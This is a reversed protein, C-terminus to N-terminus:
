ANGRAAARPFAQDQLEGQGGLQGETCVLLVGQEGVQGRTVEARRTRDGSRQAILKIAEIGVKQLEVLAVRGCRAGLSHAKRGDGHALLTDGQRVGARLVGELEITTNLVKIIGRSRAAAEAQAALGANTKKLGLQSHAITQQQRRINGAGPIFLGESAYISM